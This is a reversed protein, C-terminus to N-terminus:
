SFSPLSIPHNVAHFRRLVKNTKRIIAARISAAMVMPPLANSFSAMTVSKELFFRAGHGAYGKPVSQIPRSINTLVMVPRERLIRIPSKVAATLATMAHKIPVAAAQRPFAASPNTPIIMSRTMPIGCIRSSIKIEKAAPLPNQPTITPIDRM